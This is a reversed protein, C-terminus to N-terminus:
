QVSETAGEAIPMSTDCAAQSSSDGSFFFSSRVAIGPTNKKNKFKEQVFIIYLAAFTAIGCTLNDQRQYNRSCCFFLFAVFFPLAKHIYVCM